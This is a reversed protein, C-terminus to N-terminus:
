KKKTLARRVTCQAYMYIKDTAMIKLSCKPSLLHYTTKFFGIELFGSYLTTIHFYYNMCAIDSLCQKVIPVYQAITGIFLQDKDTDKTTRKDFTSGFHIKCSTALSIRMNAGQKM